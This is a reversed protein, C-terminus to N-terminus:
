GDAGMPDRHRTRYITMTDTCLKGCGGIYPVLRLPVVLLRRRQNTAAPGERRSSLHAVSGGTARRAGQEGRLAGEKNRNVKQELNRACVDLGGAAGRGAKDKEGPRRTLAPPPPWLIPVGVGARAIARSRPKLKLRVSPWSTVELIASTAM